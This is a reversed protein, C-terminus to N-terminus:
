SIALWVLLGGAALFSLGVLVVIMRGKATMLGGPTNFLEAPTDVEGDPKNKLFWILIVIGLVIFIAAFIYSVIVGM